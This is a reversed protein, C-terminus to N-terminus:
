ATGGAGPPDLVGLVERAVLEPILGEMCRMGHPCALDPALHCGWRGRCPLADSSLHVQDAYGDIAPHERGGYIVVAPTRTAAALHMLLGVLCVVAGAEAFLDPLRSVPTGRLDETFPLLPEESGGVQKLLVGREHLLECLREWRPLGWDKSPLRPNPKSHLLVTGPARTRNSPPPALEPRVDRATVRIGTDLAFKDLMQQVLHGPFPCHHSPGYLVANQYITEVSKATGPPTGRSIFAPFRFGYRSRIWVRLNPDHRRIERGAASLLLEDGIGWENFLVFEASANIQGARFGNKASPGKERRPRYETLPQGESPPGRKEAATRIAAALSEPNGDQFVLVRDGTNKRPREGSESPIVAWGRWGAPNRSSPDDSGLYVVADSIAQAAWRVPHSPDPFRHIVARKGGSSAAPANEYEEGGFVLWVIRPGERGLDEAVERFLTIQWADSRDLIVTVLREEPEAFVSRYLEPDALGPLELVTDRIGTKM